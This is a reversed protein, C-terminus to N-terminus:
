HTHSPPFYAVPGQALCLCVECVEAAKAVYLTPRRACMCTCARLLACAKGSNSLLDARAYECPIQTVVMAETTYFNKKVLSCSKISGKSIPKSTDLVSDTPKYAKVCGSDFIVLKTACYICVNMTRPQTCMPFIVALLM